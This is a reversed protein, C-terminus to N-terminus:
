VVVALLISLPYDAEIKGHSWEFKLHSQKYHLVKSAGWPIMTNVSDAVPIFIIWWGAFHQRTM